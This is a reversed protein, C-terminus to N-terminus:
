PEVHYPIGDVSVIELLGGIMDYSKGNEAAIQAIQAVSEGEPGTLQIPNDGALLSWGPEDLYHELLDPNFLVDDLYKYVEEENSAEVDVTISGAVTIEQGDASYFTKTIDGRAIWVHQTANM